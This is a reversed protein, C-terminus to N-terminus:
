GDVQVLDSAYLSPSVNFKSRRPALPLPGTTQVNFKTHSKPKCQANQQM